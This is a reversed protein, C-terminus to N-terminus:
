QQGGQGFGLVNSWTPASTQSFMADPIIGIDQFNFQGRNWDTPPKQLQIQSEYAPPTFDFVGRNWDVTPKNLAMSTPVNQELGSKLGNPGFMDVTPMGSERQAWNAQQNRDWLNVGGYAANPDGPKKNFLSAVGGAAMGALPGLLKSLWDGGSSADMRPSSVEPNSGPNLPNWEVKPQPGKGYLEQWTSPLPM